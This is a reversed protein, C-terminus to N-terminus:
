TATESFAILGDRQKVFVEHVLRLFLEAFTRLKVASALVKVANFHPGTLVGREELTYVQPGALHVTMLTAICEVVTRIIWQVLIQVLDIVDEM